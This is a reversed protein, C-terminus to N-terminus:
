LIISKRSTLADFAFSSLMLFLSGCLLVQNHSFRLITLNTLKVLTTPLLPLENKCLNLDSFLSFTVIYLLFAFPLHSSELLSDPCQTREFATMIERAVRSCDPKYPTERLLHATGSPM